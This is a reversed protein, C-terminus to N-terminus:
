AAELAFRAKLRGLPMDFGTALRGRPACAEVRGAIMRTEIPLEIQVATVEIQAVAGDGSAERARDLASDALGVLLDELAVM